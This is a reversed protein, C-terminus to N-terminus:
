ARRRVWPTALRTMGVLLLDLALAVIICGLTGAMIMPKYFNFNFGTLIFYGLGGYGVLTGVTVLAVTSVTALRLGTMIGPLALPLEIGWLMAWRSYGMGQASDRVDAPVQRLGTLANRAVIVLAYLTLGFLVTRFTLGLVPGLFAFLALSPITYAVGTLGLLPGALWPVRAGAVALAVGVVAAIAVAALTLALHEGLASMLPESNRRLYDWSFWPNNPDDAIALASAALPPM